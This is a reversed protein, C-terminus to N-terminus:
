NQPYVPYNVPNILGAGTITVGLHKNKKSIRYLKVLTRSRDDVPAEKIEKLKFLYWDVLTNLRETEEKM